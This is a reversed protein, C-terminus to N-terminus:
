VEAGADPGPCGPTPCALSRVMQGPRLEARALDTDETHDPTQALDATGEILPAGCHLCHDEPGGTPAEDSM